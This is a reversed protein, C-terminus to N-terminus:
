DCAAMLWSLYKEEVHEPEIRMLEPCEYPHLELLRKEVEAARKRSTKVVLLVEVEECVRMPQRTEVSAGAATSGWRFVSKVATRTVCAALGEEVLARSLAIAVEDDATTTLILVAGVSDDGRNM